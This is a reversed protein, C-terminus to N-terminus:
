SCSNWPCLELSVISLKFSIRPGVRRREGCGTGPKGYDGVKVVLALVKRAEAEECGAERIM